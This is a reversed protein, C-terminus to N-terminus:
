AAPWDRLIAAVTEDAIPSCFAGQKFGTRAANILVPIPLSAADIRKMVAEVPVDFRHRVPGQLLKVPKGFYDPDSAEDIEMSVTDIIALFRLKGGRCLLIQDGVQISGFAAGMASRPEYWAPNSYALCPVVGRGRTKVVQENVANILFTAM